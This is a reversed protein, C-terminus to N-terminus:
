IDIVFVSGAGVRSKVSMTGNHANVIQYVIPLGLGTGNSFQSYFPVFLKKIENEEIGHGTDEFEIRAAARRSELRITLMGGEPMAKFANSALNYFVQRMMSGDVPRTVPVLRTEITHNPKLESSNRMLSVTEAILVSLDLPELKPAPPRSYALFETITKNLRETERKIIEALRGQEPSLQLESQLLDFSGKISALPNRIEHAIGASMAGLAAMQEKQRVQRELLKLETLDEISWVYGATKKEDIMIPSVSFRLYIEQGNARKTWTEFRMAGVRQVEPFIERITMHLAEDMHRGTIHQATRNLLHIRGSRDTTILGVDMSDIIRSSFARLFAMQGSSKELQAGAHRLNESLYNSLYAVACFGLINGGIIFQLYTWDPGGSGVGPIAGYKVLDLHVFHMVSSLTAAVFAGQRELLISAMVIELFYLNSVYSDVGGTRNVTWTILFLDIVIQAYTQVVYHSSLRLLFFWCVSLTCVAGLLLDMDGPSLKDTFWPILIFVSFAVVRVYILRNLWKRRDVDALEPHTV